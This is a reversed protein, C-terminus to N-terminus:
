PPKAVPTVRSSDGLLGKQAKEKTERNVHRWCMERLEDYTPSRAIGNERFEPLMGRDLWAWDQAMPPYKDVQEVGTYFIDALNKTFSAQCTPLGECGM